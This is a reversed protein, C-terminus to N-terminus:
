ALPSTFSSSIFINKRKTTHAALLQKRPQQGDIQIVLVARLHRIPHPSQPAPGDAAVRRVRVGVVLQVLDFAFEGAAELDEFVLDVSNEGDDLYKIVNM